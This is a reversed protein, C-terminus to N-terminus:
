HWLRFQMSSVFFTKRPKDQLRWYIHNSIAKVDLKYIYIPKIYSEYKGHSRKRQMSSNSDDTKYFMFGVTTTSTYRSLPKSSELTATKPNGKHSTTFPSWCNIQRDKIHIDICIYEGHLYMLCESLEHMYSFHIRSQLTILYSKTQIVFFFQLTKCSNPPPILYYLEFSIGSVLLFNLIFIIIKDIAILQLSM